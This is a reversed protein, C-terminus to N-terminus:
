QYSQVSMRVVNKMDASDKKGGKRKLAMSLPLFQKALPKPLSEPGTQKTKISASESNECLCPM